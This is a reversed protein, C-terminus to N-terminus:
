DQDQLEFCNGCYPCSGTGSKSLEIYVRPHQNWHAQNKPPCCAPLDNSNVKIPVIKKTITDEEKATQETVDTVLNSSNDNSTSENSVDENLIKNKLTNDSTVNEM